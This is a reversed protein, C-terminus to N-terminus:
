RYPCMKPPSQSPPPVLKKRHTRTAREVLEGFRLGTGGQRDMATCRQTQRQNTHRADSPEQGRDIESRTGGGGMPGVTCRCQTRSQRWYGCICRQIRPGVAPGKRTGPVSGITRISAMSIRRSDQGRKGQLQGRWDGMTRTAGLNAHLTGAVIRDGVRLRTEDIGFACAESVRRHQSHSLRVTPPQTPKASAVIPCTARASGIWLVRIEGECACRRWRQARGPVHM